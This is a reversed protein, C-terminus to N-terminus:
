LDEIQIIEKKVTRKVSSRKPMGSVARSDKSHDKEMVVVTEVHMTQPFMDVPQIYKVNFTKLLALDKALARPDCSVYVLRRACISDLAEVSVGVGVRPPDLVVVDFRKGKRALGYLARAVDGKVFMVNRSGWKLANKSALDVARRSGEVGEVSKAHKSLPFSFNGVGCCLDLVHYTKKVQCGKLVEQVLVRNQVFDSQTFVEPGFRLPRDGKLPYFHAGEQREGVQLSLWDPAKEEPLFIDDWRPKGEASSNDIPPYAVAIVRGKLEDVVFEVQSLDPLEDLWFRRVWALADNIRPVVAMCSEIDVVDESRSAHLGLVTFDPGVAVHFRGRTRTGYQASAPMVKRVKNEVDPVVSSLSRSVLERKEVLQRAYSVHQSTCGGCVGFYPCPADVRDKGRSVVSQLDGHVLPGDISAIKAEVVDGPAAGPVFVRYRCGDL